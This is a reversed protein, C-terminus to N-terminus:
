SRAGGLGITTRLSPIVVGLVNGAEDRNFEEENWTVGVLPVRQVPFADFAEKAIQRIAL